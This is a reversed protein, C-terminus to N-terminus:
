VNKPFHQLIKVKDISQRQGSDRTQKFNTPTLGTVKKFQRSLHAVSSYGLRYSIETLTLEDYALLEKTKEIKQSILFQEISVGEASSFLKSLYRYDHHFRNTLFESLKVKEASEQKVFAIILKKLEEVIKNKSDTILEFGVEEIENRFLALTRADIEIEGFDVEGLQVSVAELNLGDLINRIAFRCRDCVMNRIHIKMRICPASTRGASV